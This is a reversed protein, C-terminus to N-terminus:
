FLEAFLRDNENLWNYQEDQKGVTDGNMWDGGDESGDDPKIYEDEEEEEPPVPENDEYLFTNIYEEMESLPIMYAPISPTINRM